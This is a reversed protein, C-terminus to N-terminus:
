NAPARERGRVAAVLFAGLLPLTGFMTMPVCAGKIWKAVLGVYLVGLVNPDTPQSIVWVYAVNEVWDFLGVGLPILLLPGRLLRSAWRRPTRRLLAVWLLAFAGFSLQPMINDLIFFAWYLTRAEQTYSAAQELFRAPTMVTAGALDNQLDPLPYGAVQRFQTDFAGLILVWAINFMLLSTVLLGPNARSGLDVVLRHITRM